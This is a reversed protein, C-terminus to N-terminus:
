GPFLLMEWVKGPSGHCRGFQVLSVGFHPSRQSCSSFTAVRPATEAWAQLESHGTTEVRNSRSSQQLTEQTTPKTKKKLCYQSFIKWTFAISEFPAPNM